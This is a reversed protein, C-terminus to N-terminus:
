PLVPICLFPALFAIFIVGWTLDEKEFGRSTGLWHSKEKEGTEENSEREWQLWLSDKENQGNGKAQSWDQSKGSTEQQAVCEKVWRTKLSLGLFCQKIQITSQDM